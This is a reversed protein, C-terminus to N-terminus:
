WDLEKKFVKVYVDGEEVLVDYKDVGKLGSPMKGSALDFEWGHAPCAVKGEEIFGDYLIAAHHHPCINSIAYVKGEVLFLAVDVDDIFVRKGENEKLDTFRCVKIYEDTRPTM